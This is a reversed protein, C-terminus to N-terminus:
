LTLRAALRDFLPNEAEYFAEAVGISVAAAGGAVLAAACAHVASVPCVLRLLGDSAPFPATTGFLAACRTAEGAPDAVVATVLRTERARADAAIRTLVARATALSAADWPAALSAVLCAESRMILGDDLVKLGNDALTRGTSTIDVILEASGSAPAGETAGPSEVIVYDHVGHSTLFRRTLSVYKTAVRMPRHHRLRFRAAVDALDAMTPVDIWARPVAVVVRAHGFGLKEVVHAPEPAGGELVAPDLLEADAGGLTEHLLDLGTVALHVRGAGIERAIESASRFQVVAEPVGDIAGAYDRSGRAQRIALAAREFFALTQEQLRGKSPIALVLDESM